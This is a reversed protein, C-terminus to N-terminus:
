ISATGADQLKVQSVSRYYETQVKKTIKGIQKVM